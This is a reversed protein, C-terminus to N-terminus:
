WSSCRGRSTPRPSRSTARRRRSRHRPGRCWGSGTTAPSWTPWPWSTAPGPTWSSSWATPRTRPQSRTAWRRSPWTSSRSTSRSSSGPALAAAPAPAARCGPAPRRRGAVRPADPDRGEGLAALQVPVRPGLGGGGDRAGHRPTAVGPRRRSRHARLQRPAHHRAPPGAGAQRGRQGAIPHRAERVRLAADARAGPHGGARRHARSLVTAERDPEPIQFDDAIVTKTPVSIALVAGNRDYIDGRLGPDAVTVSLESAALRQYHASNLVQIAVLRGVVALLVMVLLIRFVKLRRAIPAHSEVPRRRSRRSSRPPPHVRRPQRPPAYRPHRAGTAVRGRHSPRTLTGTPSM